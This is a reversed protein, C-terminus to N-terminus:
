FSIVAEKNPYDLKISKRNGNVIVHMINTQDDFFDHMINTSIELKSVSAINAGEIYGYVAEGEHEFGIYTFSVPRGNAKLSLHSFLYKKILSDMAAKNPPNILDVKTNYNKALSKEFDDTFIKCSIELTKDTANHNIEIVSVHLPHATGAGKIDSDQFGETNIFFLFSGIVSLTLWKYVSAAM